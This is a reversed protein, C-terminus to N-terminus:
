TNVSREPCYFKKFWLYEKNMLTYFTELTLFDTKKSSMLKMINPENAWLEGPENYGLEHGDHSLIKVKVNPILVGVSRYGDWISIKFKEYFQKSLEDNLPAAGSLITNVSSLDYKQVLPDSVLKLVISPTAYLHNIKYKQISECYTELNFNPLVVVTVGYFILSYNESYNNLFVLFEKLCCVLIGMIISDPGLKLDVYDLQALNAVINTHTLEIGKPVGVTASSYPIFATTTKVEEPTYYVPEIECDNNLISRYPKYGRIEKDSFLLIRYFTINAEISAEPHAILVSAGSDILQYSLENAKYRPNATTVKGGAAIAGLLVIPYDAKKQNMNLNEMLAVKALLGMWSFLKIM